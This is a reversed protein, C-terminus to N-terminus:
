RIFQFEPSMTVAWLLDALGQASPKGPRSADLLANSAIRREDPSPARGLLYWYVRDVTQPITTLVPGAPLPTAPNPPALRDMSPQQDFVFFRGNVTEGQVLAVNEMLPVGEFRTFGKGAIDYVLVSPFKVRVADPVAYTEDRLGQSDLPTLTRLPIAGDPGTFVANQWIPTAKDPATSLSDEVILWIKKAQSVDVTFPVPAGRGPAGSVQRSFLSKPEPPLEGLMRQAGRWLWHTLTDGNELELAQIMTPLTDRTSFVQDRIPRGLARSFSNAAIRWERAYDGGQLQPPAAAPAAPQAAGRGPAAVAAPRVANIGAAAVPEGSFVAIV